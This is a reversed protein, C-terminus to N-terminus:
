REGRRVCRWGAAVLVGATMLVFASPEPAEAPFYSGLFDPMSGDYEARKLELWTQQDGTAYFVHTKGGYEFLDADSNNVGEGESAALVPNKDSYQWALLDKSRAIETVYQGAYQNEGNALYMVYYYGNVYRVTPCASYEGGTPGAFAPVDLKTWNALDTSRAFKFCFGVPNDSEYAMLFGQSDRTISSNLLHEANRAVALTPTSWHVGDTSTFRYIDGFWDSTVQSAFVNIQNGNVYASGLSYGSGFTSLEVGTTLNKLALYTGSPSVVTDRYSEFLYRGGQWAIPTCEMTNQSLAGPQKTLVAANSVAPSVVAALLWGMLFHPINRIWRQV